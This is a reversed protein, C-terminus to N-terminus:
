PPNQYGCYSTRTGFLILVSDAQSVTLSTPNTEMRGGAKLVRVMSLFQVGREGPKDSYVVPPLQNNGYDPEVHSPAEGRLVLCDPGDASLNSKLPSQLRLSFNIQAPQDASIRM